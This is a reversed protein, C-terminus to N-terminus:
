QFGQIVEVVEVDNTVGRSKYEPPVQKSYRGPRRNKEDKRLGESIFERLHEDILNCGSGEV